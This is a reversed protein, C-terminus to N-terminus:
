ELNSQEDDLVQELHYILIGTQEFLCSKIEDQKPSEEDIAKDWQEESEHVLRLQERLIEYNERKM